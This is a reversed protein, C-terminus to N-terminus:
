PTSEFPLNGDSGFMEQYRRDLDDALIRRKREQEMANEVKQRQRRELLREHSEILLLQNQENQWVRTREEHAHAFAERLDRLYPSIKQTTAKQIPAVSKCRAKWSRAKTCLLLLTDQLSIISKLKEFEDSRSYLDTQCRFGWHLTEVLAPIAHAYIDTIVASSQNGNSGEALVEVQKKIDYLTKALQKEMDDIQEHDKGERLEMLKQFQNGGKQADNILSTIVKTKLRPLVKTWDHQSKTVGVMKAGELITKWAAEQGYLELVQVSDDHNPSHPMGPEDEMGGDRLEEEDLAGGIATEENNSDDYDGYETEDRDQAAEAGQKASQGTDAEMAALFRADKPHPSNPNGSREPTPMGRVHNSSASNTNSSRLRTARGESSESRERQRKVGALVNVLHVQKHATNREREHSNPTAESASRESRSPAGMQYPAQLLQQSLLLEDAITKAEPLICPLEESKAGRM